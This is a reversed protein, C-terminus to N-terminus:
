LAPVVELGGPVGPLRRLEHRASRIGHQPAHDGLSQGVSPLGGGSHLRRLPLLGPVGHGGATRAWLDALRLCHDGSAKSLQSRLDGLPEDLAHHLFHPPLGSEPDGEWM